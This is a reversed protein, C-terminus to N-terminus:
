KMIRVVAADIAYGRSENNKKETEFREKDGEVKNGAAVVGIRVKLFQSTFSENFFFRDTRKVDRTMPEKILVRTKPAVALAQLSRQLESDGINTKEQIEDFSLSAGQPLDNFLLLVVTSFTSANLEHRREKGLKGEKGPVKPFVARIDASGMNALWTLQRGTHKSLYFNQFGEKLREMEPPFITKRREEDVSNGMTELPWVTTTLVNLSLETRNGSNASRAKYGATLEASLAMDKFMNELKATFSNGLEIKMRSVMQKEVDVSISKGMLLRRCLHKKYYREFLDKDQIYRLLVIAKELVEDVEKETKDKIGKKMNEDIFLSIFESCRNFSNISDTFSKTLTPQIIPDSNFSKSWLHDYKDKLALIAEVWQLAAATQQNVTPKPDSEKEPPPPRSAAATAAAENILNGVEVVRRQIEATLELKKPDIRSNLEFILSLDDFRDNEVMHKVGSDMIILQKIRSRILEDEVVQTLKLSTSQSLTSRCRDQEENIRRITHRCYSAADAELLLRTGEQRYFSRSADLFDPEFATLYLREDENELPTEYLGELMYVCGKILTKDILDGDREMAIQELIIKKLIDIMAPVPPPEVTLDIVNQGSSGAKQAEVAPKLLVCDKFQAMGSSYISPRNQDNNHIRDQGLTLLRLVRKGAQM